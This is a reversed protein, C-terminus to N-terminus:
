RVEGGTQDFTVKYERGVVFIFAAPNKVEMQITGNPTARWFEPNEYRTDARLQVSLTKGDLSETAVECVFRAEVM